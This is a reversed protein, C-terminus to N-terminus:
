RNGKKSRRRQYKAQDDFRTGDFYGRTTIKVYKCLRPDNMRSVLRQDMESITENTTIVTPLKARYRHDFLIFLQERVWRTDYLSGLDDLILVPSKIIEEFRQGLSTKSTLSFSERLFNLMKPISIIPPPASRESIHNAIGMALHTKGCGYTGEIILWGGPKEAFERAANYARQLSQLEDAPLGEDQRLDFTDFTMDSSEQQISIRHDGMDSTPNRYDPASIRVRTVLEPDVLRSRIRDEIEDLPVNTTIVTPMRNTYRHNIIQFLKEQAWQTANQTGFDDLILLKANRIQDLQSEYTTETSSFSIRLLDLVDPVTIFLTPVGLDVAYNAIAAALHTKGCGFSGQLLLWGALNKSFMQAQNYALELSDGEVPSLGPRGRPQFNDFTLHELADLNSLAFLREHIKQHIEKERCTCAEIKGFEPHGLPYDVRLYGVGKCHPCDPDGPLGSLNDMSYGALSSDPDPKRTQKDAALKKLTEDIKESM